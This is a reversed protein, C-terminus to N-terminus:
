AARSRSAGRPSRRGGPPDRDAGTRAGRCRRARRARRRGACAARRSPIRWAPRAGPRKGAAPIQQLIVRHGGGGTWGSGGLVCAGLADDGLEAGGLLRREGGANVDPVQRGDLMDPETRELHGVTGRAHAPLADALAPRESEGAAHRRPRRPVDVEDGAIARGQSGFGARFADMEEETRGHADRARREGAAGELGEGLVGVQARADGDGVDGGHLGTADPAAHLVEGAVVLLVLPHGDAGLDVLARQALDVQRRELRRDALGPRPRDHGGVVLQIADVTGLVRLQEAGDQLVLPLEVPDDHRVPPARVRRELRRGRPEVDLHGPRPAM